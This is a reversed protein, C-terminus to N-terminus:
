TGAAKRAQADLAWHLLAEAFAEARTDGDMHWGDEQTMGDRWLRCWYLDETECLITVHMDAPLAAFCADTSSFFDPVCQQRIGLPTTGILTDHTYYDGRSDCYDTEEMHVETWGLADALARNRQARDDPTM